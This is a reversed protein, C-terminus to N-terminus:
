EESLPLYFSFTSGKGEVSEAWLVGHHVQVIHRAIALGLGTGKSSRSKDVKYFREFIRGLEEEPIGVGTDVVSVILRDAGNTRARVTIRGGAPTFKIANHLLSVIVQELRREDGRPEPLDVPVDIEIHLGARVAQADLREVARTVLAGINVPERSFEVQGSEVLSLEGLEDVMQAVRDVEVAIRHSYDHVLVPDSAGATEVTEALLKLSALPTRLEHSVNAVFDRRVKELRRLETIDQLVVVCGGARGLPSATVKLFSRGPIVEIIRRQEIGSSICEQVLRHVEHDRVVEIFSRGVAQEQVLRERALVARNLFVVTGHLDTVIVGDTIASLVAALDNRESDVRAFQERFRDCAQDLADTLMSAAGTTRVPPQADAARFPISQIAKMLSRAVADARRRQIAYAVVAGVGLCVLALVGAEVDSM